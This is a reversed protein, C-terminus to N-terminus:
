VNFGGFPGIASYDDGGMGVGPSPSELTFPSLEIEDWTVGGNTSHIITGEETGVFVNKPDSPDVAVARLNGTVRPAMLIQRWTSRGLGAWGPSPPPEPAAPPAAKTPPAGRVVASLATCAAFAAVAGLRLNRGRSTM